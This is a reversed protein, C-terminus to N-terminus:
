AEIKFWHSNSIHGIGFPMSPNVTFAAAFVDLGILAPMNPIAFSPAGLGSSNTTGVLGLVGGLQLSLLLLPDASLPIGRNGLLIPGVGLSAIGIYPTIATAPTHLDMKYSTGVKPLSGAQQVLVADFFAFNDIEVQGGGSQAYGTVGVLNPMTHATLAKTGVLMDFTGNRDTDVSMTANSGLLVMRVRVNTLPPAIGTRAVATGPREYCWATDFGLMTSSNSQIKSMVADDTPTGAHRMAVGGFQVGTASWKCDAEVVGNFASVGNVTLYGWLTASQVAAGNRIAWTGSQATLGAAPPVPGDPFNFDVIVTQATLASALLGLASLSCLSTRM